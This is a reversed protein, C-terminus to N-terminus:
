YNLRSYINQLHPRGQHIPFAKLTSFGEISPGDLGAIYAQVEIYNYTQGSWPKWLELQYIVVLEFAPRSELNHGKRFSTPINQPNNIKATAWIIAGETYRELSLLQMPLAQISAGLDCSPEVEGRHRPDVKVNVGPKTQGVTRLSHHSKAEQPTRLKSVILM